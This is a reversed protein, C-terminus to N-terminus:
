SQGGPMVIEKYISTTVYNTTILIEKIAYWAGTDVFNQQTKFAEFDILQQFLLQREENELSAIENLINQVKNMMLREISIKGRM